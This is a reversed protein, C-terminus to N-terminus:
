AAVGRPTEGHLAITVTLGGGPTDDLSMSGGMAEVFGVAIALGLGVGDDTRQDGWRQFPAVVRARQAVPIGPGRDVVRLHVDEGVRGAEVRVPVGPPSHRLANALVNALSRELLAADAAVLPLDEPLAVEVRDAPDGISQIAASVPEEVATARLAVALAGSQL